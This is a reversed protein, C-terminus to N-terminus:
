QKTVWSVIPLVQKMDGEVVVVNEGFSKNSMCHRISYSPGVRNCIKKGDINWEIHNAKGKM